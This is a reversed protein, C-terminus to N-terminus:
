EYYVETTASVVANIGGMNSLPRGSFGIAEPQLAESLRVLDPPSAELQECVATSALAATKYKNRLWARFDFFGDGVIEGLVEEADFSGGFATELWVKVRPSLKLGVRYTGERKTDPLEVFHIQVEQPVERRWWLPNGSALLKRVIREKVKKEEYVLFTGERWRRHSVFLRCVTHNITGLAVGPVFMELLLYTIAASPQTGSPYLYIFGSAGLVFILALAMGLVLGSWFPGWSAAWLFYRKILNNKQM